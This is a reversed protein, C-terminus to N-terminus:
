PINSNRVQNLKQGDAQAREASEKAENKNDNEDTLLSFSCRVHDTNTAAIARFPVSLNMPSKAPPLRTAEASLSIRAGADSFISLIEGVGSNLSFRWFYFPPLHSLIRGSFLFENFIQRSRISIESIKSLVKKNEYSENKM